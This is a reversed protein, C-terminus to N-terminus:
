VESERVTWPEMQVNEPAVIIRVDNTAATVESASTIDPTLAAAPASAVEHASANEPAFAGAEATRPIEVPTQEQTHIPPEIGLQGQKRVEVKARWKVAAYVVSPPYGNEAALLLMTQITRVVEKEPVVEAEEPVILTADSPDRGIKDPHRKKYWEDAFLIAVLIIVLIITVILPYVWGSPDRVRVFITSSDNGHLGMAICTYTGRDSYSTQNVLIVGNPQNKTNDTFYVRSDPFQVRDIGNVVWTLKIFPSCTVNCEIRLTDGYRVDM